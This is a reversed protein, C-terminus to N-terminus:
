RGSKTSPSCVDKVTLNASAETLTQSNVTPSCKVGTLSPSSTSPSANKATPSCTQVCGSYNGNQDIKLILFDAMGAGFSESIGAVAYGGDQTQIISNAYDYSKGGYTRAWSLSGSSNIKLILLDDNGAGFSQTRGAVVYGGDQTQTISEAGDNGTGGFTKAWSLSGDSSLKLLLYDANGAGSSMTLGAIVYGGDQAQTISYPEDRSKGGFTKAWSLSGDSSLKLVLIDTLGAGFSMTMGVVLYGGDQTQIISADGDDETGGFTKAWSLNGDSKLKLVLFDTFGAGFSETAGSVIYGGDQTPVISEVYDYSTGEYTKAWSLSGDSKLKLVILDGYGLGFSWTLGALVYGGDQTQAISFAEEGGTGGYTKA